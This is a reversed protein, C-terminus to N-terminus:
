SDFFGPSAGGQGSGIFGGVAPSTNANQQRFQQFQRGFSSAGSLLSGAAGFNGAVQAQSAQARLLAAQSTDSTAAIQYGYAQRAANSRITLADEMGLEAQSSRVDVNSGTNVDVNGAAQAAKIGGVMSRTKEAQVTAAQEGAAATTQAQQKAILANNASVQSQFDAAQKQAQANQEAGIASVGAGVATSALGAIAIAETVGFDAV